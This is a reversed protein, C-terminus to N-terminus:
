MSVKKDFSQFMKLIKVFKSRYCMSLLAILACGILNLVVFVSGFVYLVYLSSSRPSSIQISMFVTFSYLGISIVFWVVDLARVIPEKTGGNSDYIITFPMLGFVRLTYYIPQFPYMFDIKTARVELKFTSSTQAQVLTSATSFRKRYLKSDMKKRKAIQLRFHEDVRQYPKFEVTHVCYRSM